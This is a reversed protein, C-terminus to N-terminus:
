YRQCQIIGMLRPVHGLAKWKKALVYLFREKAKVDEGDERKCFMKLTRQKTLGLKEGLDM